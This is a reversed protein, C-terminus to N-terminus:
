REQRWRQGLGFGQNAFPTLELSLGPSAGNVTWRCEPVFRAIYDLRNTCCSSSLGHKHTPNSIHFRPRCPKFRIGTPIPGFTTKVACTPGCNDLRYALVVRRQSRQSGALPRLHSRSM